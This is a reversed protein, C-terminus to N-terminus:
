GLRHIMARTATVRPGREAHSIRTTVHAIELKGGKADTFDIIENEVLVTDGAFMPGHYTYAETGHLLVRLDAKILDIIDPLGQRLAQQGAFAGIAVAYTAPALIDPHGAAVAAQTDFYIPDSEGITEAFFALAGHELTVAVAPTVHGKTTRDFIGM